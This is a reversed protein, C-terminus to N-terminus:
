RLRILTRADRAVDHQVLFAPADPHFRDLYLRTSEADPPAHRVQLGGTRRTPDYLAFGDGSELLPDCTFATIGLAPWSASRQGKALLFVVGEEVGNEALMARLDGDVCWFSDGLDQHIRALGIVPLALVVPWSLRGLLAHLGVALWIPLLLYLPHWFRPGYASGPSWYLAYGGVVLAILLGSAWRPRLRLVGLAVALMGGPVGLLLRDMNRLNTMAFRAAKEPTHGFSGLTAHCGISDGFGLANCGPRRGESWAEFWPNVPFSLARGTLQHNDWLTLACALAPLLLLPARRARDPARWLGLALLPGAVVAADFPRTLVVYAAALGALAWSWLPDRRRVVVVALALLAVLTSTHAMRSAALILAGPSLAAIAAALWARPADTLERALLWILPPLAAALIPNVLWPVGLAQGISLLAPWGPPFVAYSSPKVVWFPYLLMAANDGPPGTRAGSAFIRAQLTYAVEDSVHPLGDLPGLALAAALGLAVASLAALAFAPRVQM